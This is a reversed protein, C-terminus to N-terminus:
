PSLRREYTFFLTIYFHCNLENLVDMQARENMLTRECNVYNNGASHVYTYLFFFFAFCGFFFRKNAMFFTM